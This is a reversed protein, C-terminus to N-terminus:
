HLGQIYSAVADIEADTMRAVVNRMMGNPDNSRKGDRFDKLTQATYAAHQGSVRPFKAPANGVGSPGHCAMCASVGKANIGARYISEGQAVLAPDATGPTQSQDAFYAALDQMDQDSLAAVIPAMLPSNRESGAKFDALQKSLYSSHQGALKPWMPNVSNGDAMHCGACSASKAKGAEADGAAQVASTAMLLASISLSALWKNM